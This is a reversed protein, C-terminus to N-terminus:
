TILSIVTFGYGAALYHFVHFGAGEGVQHLIAELGPTAGAAPESAAIKIM